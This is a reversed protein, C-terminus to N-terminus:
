VLIPDFVQCSFVLRSERCYFVRLTQGNDDEMLVCLKASRENWIEGSILMVLSSMAKRQHRNHQVIEMEDFIHMHMPHMELICPYKSSKYKRALTISNSGLNVRNLVQIQFEFTSMVESYNLICPFVISIFRFSRAVLYQCQTIIIKFCKFVYRFNSNL